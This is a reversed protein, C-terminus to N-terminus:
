DFRRIVREVCTTSYSCSARTTHRHTHTRTLSFSSLIHVQIKMLPTSNFTAVSLFLWPWDVAIAVCDHPSRRTAMSRTQTHREAKSSCLFIRHRYSADDEKEEKEGHAPSHTDKLPTEQFAFVCVCLFVCHRASDNCSGGLVPRHM